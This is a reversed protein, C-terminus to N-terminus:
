KLLTFMALLISIATSAYTITRSTTNNSSAIKEKNPNIIIQDGQKLYYFENKTTYIEDKRLDIHAIKQTGYDSRIILVDNLTAYPTTGGATAIAQQLTIIENNVEITGPRQVEGELYVTFNMIRITIVPAILSKKYKQYLIEKLEKKTKGAAQVEGIAPITVMGNPEVLFGITSVTSTQNKTNNNYFSVIEQATQGGNVSVKIDLIDNKQIIPDLASLTLADILTNYKTHDIINIPRPCGTLIVMCAIVSFSVVIKKIM